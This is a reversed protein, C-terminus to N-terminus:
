LTMHSSSTCISITCGNVEWYIYLPSRERQAHVSETVHRRLFCWLMFEYWIFHFTSYIFSKFLFFIFSSLLMISSRFTHGNTEATECHCKLLLCCIQCAYTANLKFAHLIHFCAINESCLHCFILALPMQLCIICM